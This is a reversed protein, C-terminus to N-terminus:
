LVSGASADGEAGYLWVPGGLAADTATYGSTVTRRHVLLLCASSRTVAADAARQRRAYGDAAVRVAAEGAAGVGLRGMGVARGKGAVGGADKVRAGEAAEGALGLDKGTQGAVRGSVVEAAAESVSKFDGLDGAGQGARQAEVRFQGLGQRQDVVDAMRGEAVGAFLREVARELGVAEVEVVIEVGQADDGPELLAVRGKAAEVEGEADAFADDLVRAVVGGRAWGSSASYKRSWNGGSSACSM